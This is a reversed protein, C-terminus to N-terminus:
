IIKNLKYKTINDSWYGKEFFKILQYFFNLGEGYIIRSIIKGAKKEFLEVDFSKNRRPRNLVIEYNKAIYRKQFSNNQTCKWEKHNIQKIRKMEENM